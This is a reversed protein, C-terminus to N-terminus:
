QGDVQSVVPSPDAASTPSVSINGDVDASSVVHGVGDTASADTVNMNPSDATAAAANAGTTANM